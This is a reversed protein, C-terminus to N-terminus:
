HNGCTSCEPCDKCECPCGCGCGPCVEKESSILTDTLKINTFTIVM